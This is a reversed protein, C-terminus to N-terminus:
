GKNESKEFKKVVRGCTVCTGIPQMPACIGQPHYPKPEDCECTDTPKIPEVKLPRLSNTQILM